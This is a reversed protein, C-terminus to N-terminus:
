RCVLIAGRHPPERRRSISATATSRRSQQLSSKDFPVFAFIFPMMPSTKLVRDALVPEVGPLAGDTTRCSRDVLAQKFVSVCLQGIDSRDALQHEQHPFAALTPNKFFHSDGGTGWM